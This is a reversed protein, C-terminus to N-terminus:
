IGLTAQVLSDFDFFPEPQPADRGDRGPTGGGRIVRVGVQQVRAVSPTGSSRVVQTPQIVVVVRGTESM